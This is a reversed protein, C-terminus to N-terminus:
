DEPPVEDPSASFFLPAFLFPLFLCSVFIPPVLLPLVEIFPPTLSWDELPVGGPTVLFFFPAFLSAVFPPLFFFLNPSPAILSADVVLPLLLTLLIFALFFGCFIFSTVFSSLTIFVPVAEGWLALLLAASLKRVVNESAFFLPPLLCFRTLFFFV